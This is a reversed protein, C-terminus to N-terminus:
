IYDYVRGSYLFFKEPLSFMFAGFVNNEAATAKAM